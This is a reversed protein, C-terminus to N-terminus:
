RLAAARAFAPADDVLRDVATIRQTTGAPGLITVLNSQLQSLAQPTPVVEDFAALYADDLQQNSASPVAAGLGELLHADRHLVAGGAAGAQNENQVTRM